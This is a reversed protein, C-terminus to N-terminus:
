QLPFPEPHARDLLFIHTLGGVTHPGHSQGSLIKAAEILNMAVKAGMEGPVDGVASFEHKYHAYDVLYRAFMGPSENAILGQLLVAGDGIAKVEWNTSVHYANWASDVIAANGGKLIRVTFTAVLCLREEPIYRGLAVGAFTGDQGNVLTKPRKAEVARIKRLVHAELEEFVAKTIEVNKADLYDAVIKSMDFVPLASQIYACPVPLKNGNLPYSKDTGAVTIVTRNHNKLPIIKTATDCYGPNAEGFNVNSRSDAAVVLGDKTPIFLILTGETSTGRPEAQGTAACALLLCARFIWLRRIV